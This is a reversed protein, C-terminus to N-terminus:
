LSSFSDSEQLPEVPVTYPSSWDADFIQQLQSVVAPNYTGFSVGATTYFYGMHSQEDWYSSQCRLPSQNRTRISNSVAPGTSNYSNYFRTEAEKLNTNYHPLPFKHTTALPLETSNFHILALLQFLISQISILSLPMKTGKKKLTKPM